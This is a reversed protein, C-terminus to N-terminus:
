SARRGSNGRRDLHEGIDLRPPPRRGVRELIPAQRMPKGARGIAGRDGAENVIRQAPLRGDAHSIPSAAGARRASQCAAGRARGRHRPSRPATCRRASQARAASLPPASPARSRCARRRAARMDLAIIRVPEIRMEHAHEAVFAGRFARRKRAARREIQADIRELGLALVDNGLERMKVGLRRPPRRDPKRMRSAASALLGAIWASGHKRLPSCRFGPRLSAARRATRRRWARRAPGRGRRGAGAALRQRKGGRHFVAALDVRGVDVLALEAGIWSRRARAPARM